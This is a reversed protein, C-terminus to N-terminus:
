QLNADSAFDVRSEHAYFNRGIQEALVSIFQRRFEAESKESAPIPTHPPFRIRSLPQAFVQRGGDNMDVVVINLMAEGQFLTPGQHLQFQELDIGVVMDAKMAKGVESFNHWTNEDVWEAVEREDVLNIKRVKNHLLASVAHTLDRPVGSDSFQLEVVPRCVVVVRKEELGKFKAAIDNPNVVYALVSLWNCGSLSVCVVAACSFAVLFSARFSRFRDM